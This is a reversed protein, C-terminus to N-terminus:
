LLWRCKHERLKLPGSKGYSARHHPWLPRHAHAVTQKGLICEVVTVVLHEISRALRALRVVRQMAAQELQRRCIQAVSLLIGVAREQVLPDCEGDIAVVLAGLADKGVIQQRADDRRAFPLRDLSSQNLPEGRQVHEQLVDVLVAPDQLFADHRAMENVARLM